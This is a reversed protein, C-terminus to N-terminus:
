TKTKKINFKLSCIKNKLLKLTKTKKIQFLLRHKSPAGGQM